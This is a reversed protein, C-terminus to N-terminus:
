AKNVPMFPGVHTNLSGDAADNNQSLLVDSSGVVPVTTMMPPEIIRTVQTKVKDPNEKIPVSVRVVAVPIQEGSERTRKSRVGIDFIVSKAKDASTKLDMKGAFKEPAHKVGYGNDYRVDLIEYDQPHRDRGVLGKLQSGAKKYIEGEIALMWAARMDDLNAAFNVVDPDAESLIADEQRPVSGLRGAYVTAGTISKLFEKYFGVKIKIQGEGSGSDALDAILSTQIAASVDAISEGWVLEKELQELYAVREKKNM